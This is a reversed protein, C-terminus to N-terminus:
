AQKGLDENCLLADEEIDRIAKMGVIFGALAPSLGTGPRRYTLDKQEIVKGAPISRAAVISRRMVSRKELEAQSLVRRRQGLAAHVRAVGEALSQMEAPDASIAHDWGEMGKDLTFHKEVIVAGKAVAALPIVVGDSHDSFGVPYGFCDRLMDINNLNVAEDPSPYLSVCHLLVLDRNGTAELVEIAAAIEELSAM